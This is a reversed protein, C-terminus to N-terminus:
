RWPGSGAPLLPLVGLSLHRSQHRPDSTTACPAQVRAKGTLRPQPPVHDAAFPTPTHKAGGPARIGEPADPGVILLVPLLSVAPTGRPTVDHPGVARDELWRRPTRCGRASRHTSLQARIHPRSALKSSSTSAELEGDRRRICVPTPPSLPSRRRARFIGTFCRRRPGADSGVALFRWQLPAGSRRERAADIPDQSWKPHREVSGLSSRPPVPPLARV